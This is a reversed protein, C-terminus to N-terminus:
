NMAYIAIINREINLATAVANLIDNRTMINDAGECVVVVGLITGRDNETVMVDVEGVGDMRTLVAALKTETQSKDTDAASSSDTTSRIALAALILCILCLCIILVKKNRKFFDIPKNM